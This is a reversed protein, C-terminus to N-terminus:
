HTTATLHMLLCLKYTIRYQVPLWHLHRLATTVHDHPALRAAANQARQLPAITVKPLGALVANCYDLRSLVFASIVTATAEPGLLRRIQKLRCIDFFCASAVKNVHRQMTLESDLIVGLDRVTDVLTVTVVDNGVRLSLDNAAIKRLSVHSAFWIVETRLQQQDHHNNVGM